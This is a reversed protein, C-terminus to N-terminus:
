GDKKYKQRLSNLLPLLAVVEQEPLDLLTDVAGRVIPASEVYHKQLDNLAEVVPAPVTADLSLTTEDQDLWGIPLRLKEEISRAQDEGINRSSDAESFLRYIQPRKVGIADALRGAKGDFDKDILKKLNRLRIDHPKKAMRSILGSRYGTPLDGNPYQM